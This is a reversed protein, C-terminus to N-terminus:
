NCKLAKNAPKQKALKLCLRYYLSLSNSADTTSPSFCSISARLASIFCLFDIAGIAKYFNIAEGYDSDTFAGHLIGHRNTNDSFPYKKSNIYLNSDTFNIFADLMSIIGNVAGIQKDTVEKRCDEALNVFVSRISGVEVNRSKALKKGAGEIVPMLGSVAIHDLGLFHAEVSESIIEQYENVFPVTHYRESVMAALNEPSYIQALYPELTKECVVDDDIQKAVRELFGVQVYAPLFWGVKNFANKLYDVSGGKGALM